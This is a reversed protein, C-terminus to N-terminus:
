RVLSTYIARVPRPMATGHGHQLCCANGLRLALTCLLVCCGEQHANVRNWGCSAVPTVWIPRCFCHVPWSAKCHASVVINGWQFFKRVRIQLHRLTWTQQVSYRCPLSTQLSTGFISGVLSWLAATKHLIIVPIPLAKLMCARCNCHGSWSWSTMYTMYMALLDWWNRSHM